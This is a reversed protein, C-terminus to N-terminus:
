KLEGIPKAENWRPCTPTLTHQNEVFLKMARRFNEPRIFERDCMDDGDYHPCPTKCGRIVTVVTFARQENM